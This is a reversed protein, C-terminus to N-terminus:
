NKFHSSSSSLSALSDLAVAVGPVPEPGPRSLLDGARAWCTNEQWGAGTRLALLPFLVVLGAPELVSVLVPKSSLCVPLNPCRPFRDIM